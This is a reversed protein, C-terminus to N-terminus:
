QQESKKCIMQDRNQYFQLHSSPLKKNQRQSTWKQTEENFVKKSLKVLGPILNDYYHSNLIHQNEDRIWPTKKERKFLSQQAKIILKSQHLWRKM